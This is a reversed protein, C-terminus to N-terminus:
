LFHVVFRLQGFPSFQLLLVLVLTVLHALVQSLRLCPRLLIRLSDLLHPYPNGPRLKLAVHHRQLATTHYLLFAHNTCHTIHMHMHRADCTSQQLFLVPANLLNYHRHTHAQFRKHLHNYHHHKNPPSHNTYYKGSLQECEQPSM